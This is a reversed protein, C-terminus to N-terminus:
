CSTRLLVFDLADNAQILMVPTIASFSLVCVQQVLQGSTTLLEWVCLGPNQCRSRMKGCPM